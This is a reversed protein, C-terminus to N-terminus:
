DGKKTKQYDKYEDASVTEWSKTKSGDTYTIEYLLQYEEDYHKSHTNPVYQLGNNRSFWVWKYEYDTVIEDHAEVYKSDIPTRSVETKYISFFVCIIGTIILGIFVIGFIRTIITEKTKQKM